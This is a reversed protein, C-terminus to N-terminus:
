LVSRSGRANMVAYEELWSEIARTSEPARAALAALWAPRAEDPLDLVEDLIRVADAWRTVIPDTM